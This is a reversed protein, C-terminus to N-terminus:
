IDGPKIGRTNVHIVRDEEKVDTDMMNKLISLVASVHYGSDKLMQRFKDEELDVGQANNLRLILVDIEEPDITFDGDRDSQMVVSLIDQSIKAELNEKIKDLVVQNEKVTAVFTDVQQGQASLVDSLGQEVEKVKEVQGELETNTATLENNEIQLRNVEQRLKNHVERLTELKMLRTRQFTAYGSTLLAVVGMAIVVGYSYIGM